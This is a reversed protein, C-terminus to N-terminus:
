TPVLIKRISRKTGVSPNSTDARTLKALLRKGLLHSEHEKSHDNRLCGCHSSIPAYVGPIPCFKEIDCSLKPATPATTVATTGGCYSSPSVTGTTAAM